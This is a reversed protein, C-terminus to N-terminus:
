GSRKMGPRWNKKASAEDLVTKSKETLAAIINSPVPAGGDVGGPLHGMFQPEYVEEIEGLDSPDPTEGPAAMSSDYDRMHATGTATERAMLGGDMKVGGVDFGPIPLAGPRATRMNGYGMMETLKSRDPSGTRKGTNVSENLHPRGPAKRPRRARKVEKAMIGGISEKILKPLIKYLENRVEERVMKRLDNKNM